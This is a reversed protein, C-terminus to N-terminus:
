VKLGSSTLFLVVTESGALWGSDRLKHAAAVTAAGELGAFIGEQFGLQQQADRMERDSVAVAIGRSDYVAKLIMFDGL